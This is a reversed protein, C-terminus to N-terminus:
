EDKLTTLFVDKGSIYQCLVGEFIRDCNYINKSSRGIGYAWQMRDQSAYISWLRVSYLNKVQQSDSPSCLNGQCDVVELCDGISRRIESVKLGRSLVHHFINM